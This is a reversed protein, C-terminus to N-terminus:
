ASQCDPQCTSHIGTSSPQDGRGGEGEGLLEQTFDFLPLCLPMSNAKNINTNWFFCFIFYFYNAWYPLFFTTCVKVRWLTTTWLSENVLTPMRFLTFCRAGKKQTSGEKSHVRLGYQFNRHRPSCGDALSSSPSLHLRGVNLIFYLLTSGEKSHVRLEYQFHRHRPSCDDSLSSSPSLHLRGVCSLIFGDKDPASRYGLV